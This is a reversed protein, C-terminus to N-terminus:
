KTPAAKRNTTIPKNLAIILIFHNSSHKCVVGAATVTEVIRVLTVDRTVDAM